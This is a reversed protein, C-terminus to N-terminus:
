KKGKKILKDSVSDYTKSLIKPANFRYGLFLQSTFRTNKNVATTGKHTYISSGLTLYAGTFFIRGNYGIGSTGECSIVPSTKKTVVNGSSYRTLLHSYIFGFSPTLGASFYFQSKIVFTHYYGPGVSFQFNNSKRTTGPAKNDVIYYRYLVTPIFSGASKLQRETQSILSPQSFNRNFKYATGGQFNDTVMEPSQLYADGDIWNPQYDKTNKVYYGKGHRYSLGTFLRDFNLGFGFGSNKTKGKISDPENGPFFKPAFSYGISLIRYNVQVRMLTSTNPRLDLDDTETDVFFNEIDNTLALKVTPSNTMKEIWGQEAIYRTTDMKKQCVAANGIGMFFIVLALYIMQQLSILFIM